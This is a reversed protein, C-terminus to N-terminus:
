AVAEGSSAGEGDESAGGGGEEKSSGGGGAEGGGEGDLHRRLFSAALDLMASAQAVAKVDKRGEKTTSAPDYATFVPAWSFLGPLCHGFRKFTCRQYVEKRSSLYVQVAPPFPITLPHPVLPGRPPAPRCPYPLAPATPVVPPASSAQRM